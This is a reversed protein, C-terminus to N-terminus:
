ARVDKTRLIWIAILYFLLFFFLASAIFPLGSGALSNTAKNSNMGMLMLSYPWGLGLGKNSILMGMVSGILAIGIPVSFSRIVMSLLLQLAGIVVAAATGRFLWFIIELPCLGPLGILKGAAFYLFGVWTQTIVTVYFIVALKGLYLSPISVPTSMFVNWNNNRHELRWMYSCYLAILPAYFFTSYFLTFQTWLSYWQSKLIGINQLYNFSGMIAPIVPIIICAPFIFSHKLKQGEARICRSLMTLAPFPEPTTQIDILDYRSM